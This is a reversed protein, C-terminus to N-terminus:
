AEGLVRKCIREWERAKHMWTHREIITQRANEGIRKRENPTELLLEIASIIRDFDDPPCLLGNQNHTVVEAIQGIRTTVVPKAAAMYEFLKVPSYYFFELNPYPALVVDMLSIYKPIEEYPVYGTLIVNEQLRKTAIFQRIESELGGGSGVLLFKARPYKEVIAGIIKRLNEMGHWVSMSGVFGLVPRDALGYKRILLEYRAHTSFKAVDAGNTVVATREADLEHTEIFYRQLERSQMVAFDAQRLVWGEIRQPISDIRWYQKQFHVAEYVPPSDAEIIIPLGFKRATKIASFLYLDLRAVILDPQFDRVLREERRRFRLNEFLLKPDHVYRSLAKKLVERVRRKATFAGNAQPQDKMWCIKVTHGLKEMAAFLEMPKIASGLSAGRIDWLYNFYLIRM